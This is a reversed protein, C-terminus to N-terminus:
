PIHTNKTINTNKRELYTLQKEHTKMEIQMDTGHLHVNKNACKGTDINKM